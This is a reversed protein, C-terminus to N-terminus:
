QKEKVHDIAMALLLAQRLDANWQFKCLLCYHITEKLQINIMGGCAPCAEPLDELGTYNAIEEFYDKLDAIPDYQPKSM